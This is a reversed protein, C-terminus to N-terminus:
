ARCSRRVHSPANAHAGPLWVHFPMLGAKFGFGVVGLVFLLTATSGPIAHGAELAFTGTAHRWLSFMAFLCLTGIHTAILYVWGAGRVEPKDDEATAAFYAALAMVEWAILFLMGDRAIVVLAMAGALLGYAVGLRRGNEPHQEARWYAM